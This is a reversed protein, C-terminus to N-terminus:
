KGSLLCSFGIPLLIPSVATLLGSYTTFLLVSGTVIGGYCFAEGFKEPVTMSEKNEKEKFCVRNAQNTGYYVGFCGGTLSASAVIRQTSTVLTKRLLTMKTEHIYILM